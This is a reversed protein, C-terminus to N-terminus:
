TELAFHEFRLRAEKGFERDVEVFKASLTELDVKGLVKHTMPFVLFDEKWIHNPYLKYIGQLADLIETRAASEGAQYPEINDAIIRVLQRGNVHEHMLAGIPCGESPVGYKILVPFLLAEEKGHHCHDAYSRMFDVLRRLADPEIAQGQDMKSALAKTSEVVKLIFKHEYELMRTPNKNM